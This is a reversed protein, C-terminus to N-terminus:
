GNMPIKENPLFSSSAGGRRPPRVPAERFTRVSRVSRTSRRGRRM